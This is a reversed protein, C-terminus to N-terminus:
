VRSHSLLDGRRLVQTDDVAVELGHHVVGRGRLADEIRDHTVRLDLRLARSLAHAYETVSGTLSTLGDLIGDVAHVARHVCGVSDLFRQELDTLRQELVTGVEAGVGL